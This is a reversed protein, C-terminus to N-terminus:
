NNIIDLLILKNNKKALFYNSLWIIIKGIFAYHKLFPVNLEYYNLLTHLNIKKFKM